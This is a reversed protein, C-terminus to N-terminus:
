PSVYWLLVRCPSHTSSMTSQHLASSNQVFWFWHFRLSADSGFPRQAWRKYNGTRHQYPRIAKNNYNLKTPRNSPGRPIVALCSSISVPQLISMRPRPEILSLFLTGGKTVFLVNYYCQLVIDGFRGHIPRQIWQEVPLLTPTCKHQKYKATQM